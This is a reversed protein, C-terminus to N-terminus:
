ELSELYALLAQLSAADLDTGPMKNGPKIAQPDVIWGGLNGRTNPLIGAALTRRSALHTLDPGVAGTANEATHGRVVHCYICASGLFVQQGERLLPDNLDAAPRAQAEAWAAFREPTEAVVVFAMLAHQRGCFEACQGRYEGPHDAQITMANPRGPIMDVKGNLQPVWLSHIVDATSLRLEVPQGAPIVIENATIFGQDPYRVEWWFQHAIVEVTLAPQGPPTMTASTWATFGVLPVLIVLPLAVGGGGLLRNTVRREAEAPPAGEGRRRFLAVLLLVTVLVFVATGLGLMVWWLLNIRAAAYGRADLASPAGACGALAVLPPALWLLRLRLARPM